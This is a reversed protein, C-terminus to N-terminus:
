RLSYVIIELIALLDQLNLGPGINNINGYGSYPKTTM